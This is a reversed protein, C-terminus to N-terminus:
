LSTKNNYLKKSCQIMLCFRKLFTLMICVLVINWSIYLRCEGFFRIINTHCRLQKMGINSVTYFNNWSRRWLFWYLFIILLFRMYWLRFSFDIVSLPRKSALFLYLSDILCSSSHLLCHVVPKEDSINITTINWLSLFMKGIFLVTAM